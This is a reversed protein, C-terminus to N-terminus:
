RDWVFAFGSYPISGIGRIFSYFFYNVMLILMVVYREYHKMPVKYMAAGIIFPTLYVFWNYFRRYMEIDGGITNLIVAFYSFYFVIQLRRDVLQAKFGYYIIVIQTCFSFVINLLSAANVFNKGYVISSISGEDTFWRDSNDLYNQMKIDDGLNLASLYDTVDRFYSVDWFFYLAIFAGLLVWPRKLPIRFSVLLISFVVAILGSVHILPVCCLFLITLYKRKNLYMYYAFIVFSIALYQRIINESSNQTIIYFLPLGWVAAKPYKRFILLVAFILL